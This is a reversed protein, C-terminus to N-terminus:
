TRHHRGLVLAHLHYPKIILLQDGLPITMSSLPTARSQRSHATWSSAIKIRVLLYTPLKHSLASSHQIHNKQTIPVISSTRHCALRGQTHVLSIPYYFYILYFFIPDFLTFLSFYIDSDLSYYQSAILSFPSYPRTRIIHQHSITLPKLLVPFVIPFPSSLPPTALPIIRRSFNATTFWLFSFRTTITFSPPHLVLATHFLSYNVHSAASSRSAFASITSRDEIDRGAPRQQYPPGWLGELAIPGEIIDLGGKIERNHVWGARPRTPCIGPRRAPEINKLRVKRAHWAIIACKNGKDEHLFAPTARQSPEGGVGSTMPPTLALPTFSPLRPPSESEQSMMSVARWLRTNSSHTFSPDRNPMLYLSFVYTAAGLVFGTAKELPTHFYIGTTYMALVWVGLLASAVGVAFKYAAVRREVRSRGKTERVNGNHQNPSSNREYPDAANREAEIARTLLSEYFGVRRGETVRPVRTDLARLRALAAQILEAIFLAAVTILFVHGSVDHGRRIRPRAKYGQKVLEDLALNTMGSLGSSSGDPSPDAFLNAFLAPHSDVGVPTNSHCLYAPVPFVRAETPMATIKFDANTPPASLTPPMVLVCEGGTVLTLRTLLAPGFFWATFLAWAATLVVWRLLPRITAAFRQSDSPADEWRLLKRKSNPSTDVPRYVFRGNKKEETEEGAAPPPLPDTPLKSALAFLLFFVASTWGWANKIFITNLLSKKSAFYHTDALPHPAYSLLPNSTDLYTQYVVSYVTGLTLIVSLGVFTLFPLGM